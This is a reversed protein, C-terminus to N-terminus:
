APRFALMKGAGQPVLCVGLAPLYKMRDGYGWVPVTNSGSAYSVGPGLSLQRSSVTYNATNTVDGTPVTFSHCHAPGGRQMNVFHVKNDVPDYGGLMPVYPYYAPWAGPKAPPSLGRSSLDLATGTQAVLDYMILTNAANASQFFWLKRGQPDNWVLAGNGEGFPSQGTGSYSTATSMTAGAIGNSLDLYYIGGTGKYWVRKMNDDRASHTYTTFSGFSMDPVYVSSLRQWVKTRTNMAHMGFKRRSTGPWVEAAWETDTIVNFAPAWAQWPGYANHQNAIFAGDGTGTFSAPVYQNAHYRFCWPSGSGTSFSVPKRWFIWGYWGVPFPRGAARWATLWAFEDAHSEIKQATTLVTYDAHGTGCYYMDADAAQAAALTTSYGPQQYWTYAPSDASLSFAAIQEMIQNEGTSMVLMSGYAGGVDEAWVAGGYADLQQAFQGTVAVESSYGRMGASGPSTYTLATTGPVAGVEYLTDTASMASRWAPYANTVQRGITRSWQTM